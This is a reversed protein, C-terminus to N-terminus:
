RVEVANHRKSEGGVKNRDTAREILAAAAPDSSGCSCPDNGGSSRQQWMLVSRQRGQTAAAVPPCTTVAPWSDISELPADRNFIRNSRDKETAIYTDAILYVRHSLL